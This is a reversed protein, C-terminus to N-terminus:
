VHQPVQRGARQGDEQGAGQGGADQDAISAEMIATAEPTLPAQQTRGLRKTPDYGPQGTVGPVPIRRWAGSWDPYKSEDFAQAAALPLILAATLTATAIMARYTM